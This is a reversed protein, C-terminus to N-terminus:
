LSVLISNKEPTSLPSNLISVIDKEIMMGRNFPLILNVVDDETLDEPIPVTNIAM